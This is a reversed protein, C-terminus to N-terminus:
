STETADRIPRQSGDPATTGTPQRHGVAADGDDAEARAALVVDGALGQGLGRGIRGTM